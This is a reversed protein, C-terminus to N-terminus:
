NIIYNNSKKTKKREIVRGLSGNEMLFLLQTSFKTNSFASMGEEACYDRYQQYLISGVYEGCDVSEIFKHVSNHTEEQLDSLYKNDPLIRPSFMKIDRSLLMGAVALGGEKNFLVNRVNTWYEYDGIKEPSVVSIVYRREKQSVDVPNPNNSTAIMRMYNKVSYATDNKPNFGLKPATLSSKFTDGNVSDDLVKKNIEEIKVLVKNAKNEDHKDFYQLQNSYNHYYKLGIIYEGLFDGLTDKGAGKQGNFILAVGPLEETKQLMHALWNLVYTKIPQQRNTLIDLLGDFIPLAETRPECTYSTYIFSPPPLDPVVFVTTDTSYEFSIRSYTRMTPDKLWKDIFSTNDVLFMNEYANRLQSRDRFVWKDSIFTYFGVPDQVKFNTEEFTAKVNDYNNDIIDTEDTPWFENVLAYCLEKDVKRKGHSFCTATCSFCTKLKTLYYCSHGDQSHKYDAKVLCQKTKPIIKITIKDDDKFTEITSNDIDIDPVDFGILKELLLSNMESATSLDGKMWVYRKTEGEKVYQSPAVYCIGKQARIDLGTIQVNNWTINSASILHETRKDVKFWFHYGGPTREVAGCNAFLVDKIEEPPNYKLEDFDIVFHTEGTVIAVGNDSRNIYGGFNDKNISGWKVSVKKSADMKFTFCPVSNDICYQVTDFASMNGISSM